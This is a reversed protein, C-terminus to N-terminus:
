IGYRGRISNHNSAIETATLGRSYVGVVSIPGTWFNDSAGVELYQDSAFSTLTSALTNVLTGNFYWSILGSSNQSVAVTFWTTIPFTINNSLGGSGGASFHIEYASGTNYIYTNFTRGGTGGVGFLCRYASSWGSSANAAIFVTKGTYTVNYKSGATQFYNAGNFTFYGGNSSSYTPYTAGTGMSATANNSNNSLDYWTTGTGPYSNPNGADLYLLTSSDNIVHADNIFGVNNLTVGQIIM